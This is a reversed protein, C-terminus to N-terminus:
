GVGERRLRTTLVEIQVDLDLADHRLLKDYQDHCTNEIDVLLTRFNHEREASPGHAESRAYQLAVQQAGDLYVNLFKRSRRLDAPDAELLKLIGEVQRAISGLREQFERNAIQAAATHLGDLRQYAAELMQRADADASRRAWGPLAQAQAGDAGYVLFYGAAAGIAYALAAFVGQGVLAFAVFGAALGCLVGGLTKWPLPRGGGLPREALRRAQRYGRRTCWAAAAFLAYGAVAAALLGADGSWLSIVAKLLLPLPLLLLLWGALRDRLGGGRRGAASTPRRSLQFV